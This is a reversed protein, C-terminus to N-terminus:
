PGREAELQQAPIHPESKWDEEMHETRIILINSKYPISELYYQYNFFLHEEYRVVGRLMDRARQKCEESSGGDDALGLAALENTTSFSCDLYIQKIDEWRKGESSRGDEDPRGYVFASRSRALPDRVVFLYYDSSAPCDYVDKHFAHTASKPLRGPLYQM